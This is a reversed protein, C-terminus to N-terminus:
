MEFGTWTGQSTCPFMPVDYGCAHLAGCQVPSPMVFYNDDETLNSSVDYPAERQVRGESGLEDYMLFLCNSPDINHLEYQTFKEAHSSLLLSAILNGWIHTTQFCALFISKLRFIESEFSVDKIISSEYALQMVYTNEASWLM